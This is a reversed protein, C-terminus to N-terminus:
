DTFDHEIEAPQLHRNYRDPFQERPTEPSLCGSTMELANTIKQICYADNIDVQAHGLPEALKPGRQQILALRYILHVQEISRAGEHIIQGQHSVINLVVRVNGTEAEHVPRGGSDVRRRTFRQHSM